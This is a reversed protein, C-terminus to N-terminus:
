WVVMGFMMDGEKKRFCPVVPCRECSSIYERVERPVDPRPSSPLVLQELSGRRQDAQGRCLVGNKGNRFRRSYQQVSAEHLTLEKMNFPKAPWAALVPRLVPDQQQLQLDAM